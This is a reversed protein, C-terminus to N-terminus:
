PLRQAFTVLLDSMRRDIRITSQKNESKLKAWSGVAVSVPTTVSGCPATTGFAVTVSVLLSVPTARSTGVPVWPRVTRFKVVDDVLPVREGRARRTTAHKGAVDTRNQGMYIGGQREPIGENGGVHPDRFPEPDGLPVPDLRQSLNKLRALLALIRPKLLEL